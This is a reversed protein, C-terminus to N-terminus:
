PTGTSTASAGVAGAAGTPAPTTAAPAATAAGPTAAPAATTAGATATAAGPASGSTAAGSPAAGATDAPGTQEQPSAELGGAVPREPLRLDLYAAGRSTPDALVVTAAAWKARMRDSGGFYLTPGSWLPVTIGKASVYVRRVRGRLAPPAVSLVALARRVDPATAHPGAPPAEAAIEPVQGTRASRMVTGDAAVPIRQGGAVVTAIPNRERVTIRLTHPLDADTEVALVGPYPEVASALEGHRVHMTTMERAAAQLAERVRPADPGSVGTVTVREVAVFGSDRLWFWGAALVAAACLFGAAVRLPLRPARPPRPPLPARM